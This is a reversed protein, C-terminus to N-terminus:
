PIDILDEVQNYIYLNVSLENVDNSHIKLFLASLFINLRNNKNTITENYYYKKTPLTTRPSYSQILMYFIKTSEIKITHQIFIRSTKYM